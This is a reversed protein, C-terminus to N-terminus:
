EYDNPAKGVSFKRRTYKDDGTAKAYERMLKELEKVIELRRRELDCAESSRGKIASTNELQATNKDKKM